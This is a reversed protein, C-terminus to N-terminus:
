LSVQMKCYEIGTDLWAIGIGLIEVNLKNKNM